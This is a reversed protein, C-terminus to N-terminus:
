ESINKNNISFENFYYEKLDPVELQWYGIYDARYPYKSYFFRRHDPPLIKKHFLTADMYDRLDLPATSYLEKLISYHYRLKAENESLSYYYYLNFHIIHKYQEFTYKAYQPYELETAINAASKLKNTECYYILLNCLIIGREYESPLFLLANKLNEEVTENFNRSLIDIVSINNLFYCERCAYDNEQEAQNLINRAIDLNGINAHRMALTIKTRIALDKRNHLVFKDICEQLLNLATYNDTYTSYNKLVFYYELYSTYEISKLVKEAYEKADKSTKHKMKYYLKIYKCFLSIRPYDIYKNYIFKYYEEFDHINLAGKLALMFMEHQINDNQFIIQLKKIAMDMDGVAYLIDVIGLMVKERLSVDFNQHNCIKELQVIVRNISKTDILYQKIYHMLTVIREDNFLFYMYLLKYIYEICINSNRLNQQCDEEVIKFATYAIPTYTLNELMKIVSGSLLIQNNEREILRYKDLEELTDSIRNDNWAPNESRLLLNKLEDIYIEKGYFLIVYLIFRAQKSIKQSIGSSDVDNCYDLGSKNQFFIILEDINGNYKVYFDSFQLEKEDNGTVDKLIQLVHKPTMKKIEIPSNFVSFERLYDFLNILNSANHHSDTTYQMFIYLNSYDKLFSKIIELSEGDISQVNEMTIIVDHEYKSFFKQMFRIKKIIDKPIDSIQDVSLTASFVGLNLGISISFNLGNIRSIYEKFKSYIANFYFYSPTVANNSTPTKVDLKLSLPYYKSVFEEVLRAKGIGAESYLLIIRGKGLISKQNITTKLKEFEKERNLFKPKM